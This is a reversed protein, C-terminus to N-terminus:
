AAEKKTKSVSKPAVLDLWQNLGLPPHIGQEKEWELPPRSSSARPRWERGLIPDFTEAGTFKFTGGDKREWTAHLATAAARAFLIWTELDHAPYRVDGRQHQSKAGEDSDSQFLVAPMRAVARFIRVTWQQATLRKDLAAITGKLARREFETLERGPEIIVIPDSELASEARSDREVKLREFYERATEGTHPITM